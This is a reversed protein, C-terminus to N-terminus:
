LKEETEELDMIDATPVKKRILPIRSLEDIDLEAEDPQGQFHERLTEIDFEEQQCAIRIDTAPTSYTYVQGTKLDLEFCSITFFKGLETSNFLIRNERPNSHINNRIMDIVHSNLFNLVYWNLSINSYNRVYEEMDKQDIRTLEVRPNQMTGQIKLNQPHPQIQPQPQQQPEAATEQNMSAQQCEPNKPRNRALHSQM